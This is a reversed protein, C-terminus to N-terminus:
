VMLKESKDALGDLFAKVYEPKLEKLHCARTDVIVLGVCAPGTGFISSNGAKQYECVVFPLDVAKVRFPIGEMWGYDQKKPPGFFFMSSDDGEVRECELVTVFLGVSLEGPSIIM